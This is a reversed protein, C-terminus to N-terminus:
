SFSPLFRRPPRTHACCVRKKRNDVVLPVRPGMGYALSATNSTYVAGLTTGLPGLTPGKDARLKKEDSPDFVRSQASSFVREGVRGCYKCVLEASKTNEQYECPKGDGRGECPPPLPPTKNRRESM